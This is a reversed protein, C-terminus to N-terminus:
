NYRFAWVCGTLGNALTGTGTIRFQIRDGQRVRLLAQTAALNISRKGNAVMAAGGTAKSTNENGSSFMSNTGTGDQGLNTAVFTIYNTDSAALAENASFDVSELYGSIPAIAYTDANGAATAVNPGALSVVEKPGGDRRAMELINAQPM